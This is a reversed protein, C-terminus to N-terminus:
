MPHSFDAAGTSEQTGRGGRRLKVHKVILSNWINPLHIGGQDKNIIPRAKQITIAEKIKRASWERGMGLVEENEAPSFGEDSCTCNEMHARMHFKYHRDAFKASSKYEKTHNSVPRKTEGICKEHCHPCSVRYIVGALNADEKKPQKSLLTKVTNRKRSYSSIGARALHRHIPEM